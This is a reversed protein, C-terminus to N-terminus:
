RLPILTPAIMRVQPEAPLRGNIRDLLLRVLEQGMEYNQKDVTAVLIRPDFGQDSMDEFINDYGAILIEPDSAKRLRECAAHIEFGNQDNTALIADPPAEDRFYPLLCGTVYHSMVQFHQALNDGPLYVPLQALMPLPTLGAEEMARLYAHYRARVWYPDGSSLACLIRRCGREILLRTLQYSGAAHDSVVRDCDHYEPNDGFIVFPIGAGRMDRLLQPLRKSHDPFESIVVGRPRQALLRDFNDQALIDPHLAISHLGSSQVANCVGNTIYAISGSGIRRGHASFTPETFMLTSDAMIAIGNELLSPASIKDKGSIFRDRPGRREILGEDELTKLARKVTTLSVKLKESLKRESPLCSGPVLVGQDIWSSLTRFARAGPAESLLPKVNLNWSILRPYEM